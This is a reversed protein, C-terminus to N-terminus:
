YVRITYSTIFHRKPKLSITADREEFPLDEKVSKGLGLWPELCIFPADKRPTWIAVVPYGVISLWVGHKGNSYGIFPAKINHYVWTSHKEFAEYTLPIETIMTDKQDPGVGNLKVANSFMVKYDSFSEGKVLPCNFAPHLGFNFPMRLESHNTIKYDVQIENDKLIYTVDLSFEFPYQKLTEANSELKLTLSDETQKVLVFMSNRAFGHNGMEYVQGNIHYKKDYSSGIIPFLIPNRGSWYEPDGSWVYELNLEKDYFSTMEAAKLNFEVKYRANELKM